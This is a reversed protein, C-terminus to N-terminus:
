LLRSTVQLVCPSIRANDTVLGNSAFLLTPCRLVSTGQPEQTHIRLSLQTWQLVVQQHAASWNSSGGRQGTSIHGATQDQDMDTQSRNQILAEQNSHTDRYCQEVQGLVTRTM